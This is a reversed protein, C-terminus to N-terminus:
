GIVFESVEFVPIHRIDGAVAGFLLLHQLVLIRTGGELDAQLQTVTNADVRILVAQDGGGIRMGPQRRRALVVVEALVLM